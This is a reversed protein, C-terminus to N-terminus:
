SLFRVVGVGSPPSFNCNHSIVVFVEFFTSKPPAPIKKVDRASEVLFVVGYLGIKLGTRGFITSIM